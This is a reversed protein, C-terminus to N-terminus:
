RILRGPPDGRERPRWLMARADWVATRTVRQFERLVRVDIANHDVWEAGFRKRIEAVAHRHFLVGHKNFDDYM